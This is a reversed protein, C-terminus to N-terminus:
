AVYFLSFRLDIRAARTEGQAADVSSGELTLRLALDALTPDARIAAAARAGHDAADARPDRLSRDFIAVSLEAEVEEELAAMAAPVANLRQHAVAFAPLRAPTVGAPDESWDNFSAFTAALVARARATIAAESM